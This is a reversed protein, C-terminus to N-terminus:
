VHVVFQFIGFILKQNKQANYISFHLLACIKKQIQASYKFKQASDACFNKDQQACNLPTTCM